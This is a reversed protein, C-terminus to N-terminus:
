RNFDAFVSPVTSGSRSDYDVVLCGEDKIVNSSFVFDNVIEM